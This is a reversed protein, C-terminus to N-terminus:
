VRVLRIVLEGALALLGGAAYGVVSRRLVTGGEVALINLLAKGALLGAGLLVLSPSHLVLGTILVLSFLLVELMQVVTYVNV